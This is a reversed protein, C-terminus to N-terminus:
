LECPIDKESEAGLVADIAATPTEGYYTGKVTWRTDTTTASHNRSPSGHKLCARGRLADIVQDISHEISSCAYALGRSFEIITPEGMNGRKASRSSCARAAPRVPAEPRGSRQRM